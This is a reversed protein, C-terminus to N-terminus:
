LNLFTNLMRLGLGGSKEPHFQTGYMHGRAIVASLRVGNYSTDALRHEEADPVPTFSHVFYATSGPAVGDLLTGGWGADGAPLLPSWSIHPIKHPTGDPGQSAIARVRGPILGLGEHEGFEESASLMMQMGLCIGLFPREKHAYERVADVLGREALGAMGDKFAGVGPLVLREAAAVKAPDATFVMEAGCHNLANAISFLNGIGYDIVTVKRM